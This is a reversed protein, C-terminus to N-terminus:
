FFIQRREDAEAKRWRERSSDCERALKLFEPVFSDLLKPMLPTNPDELYRQFTATDMANLTICQYNIRNQTDLLKNTFKAAYQVDHMLRKAEEERNQGPYSDPADKYHEIFKPAHKLCLAVIARHFAVDHGWTLLSCALVFQARNQAVGASTSKLNEAAKELSADCKRRIMDIDDNLSRLASKLDIM